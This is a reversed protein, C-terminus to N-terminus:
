ISIAEKLTLSLTQREGERLRIGFQWDGLDGSTASLDYQGRVPYIDLRYSGSADTRAEAIEEGDRELRVAASPIPQGAKDTIVGSLVARSPSLPEMRVAFGWDGIEQSVKLLCRNAGAKLDAEFIDEDLTIFRQVPHHYVQEGNIWVAVGDDSGLYIRADIAVESRLVCFAYATEHEHAGVADLLDIIDTKSKYRKWKLIRGDETTVTDGEIPEINAEGGM